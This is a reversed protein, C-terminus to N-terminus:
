DGVVYRPKLGILHERLTFLKLRIKNQFFPVIGAEKRNLKTKKVRYLDIYIPLLMSPTSPVLVWPPLISPM